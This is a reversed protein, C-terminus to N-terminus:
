FERDSARRTGQFGIHRCGHSGTMFRVHVIKSLMTTAEDVVIRPERLPEDVFHLLVKV